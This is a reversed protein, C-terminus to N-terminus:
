EKSDLQLDLADAPLEGDLRLDQEKLQELHVNIAM